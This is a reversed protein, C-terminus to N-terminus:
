GSPGNFGSGPLGLSGSVMSTLTPDGGFSGLLKDGGVKKIDELQPLKKHLLNIMKEQAEMKTDVAIQISKLKTEM